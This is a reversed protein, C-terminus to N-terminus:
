YNSIKVRMIKRIVAYKALGKNGLIKTFKNYIIVLIKDKFM